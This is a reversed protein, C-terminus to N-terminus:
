EGALKLFEQYLQNNIWFEADNILQDLLPKVTIIEGQKKAQLLVGLLGTVKLQYNIALARGRREDMLLLDANLEIALMIARDEGLHINSSTVLIENVKQLNQVQRTQIWSYTKVETAGPVEKASSIQTLENYVAVPIIISGYLFQLLDLTQIAALNTILSTDSVIIM